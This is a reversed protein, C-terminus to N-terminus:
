QREYLSGPRFSGLRATALGGSSLEPKSISLSTAAPLWFEGFSNALTASLPPVKSTHKKNQPFMDVEFDAKTQQQSKASQNAPGLSRHVLERRGSCYTSASLLPEVPGQGSLYQRHSPFGQLHKETYNTSTGWASPSPARPYAEQGGRCDAM